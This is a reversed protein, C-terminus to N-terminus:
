RLKRRKKVEKRLARWTTEDPPNQIAVIPLYIPTDFVFTKSVSLLV